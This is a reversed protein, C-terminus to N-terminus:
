KLKKLSDVSHQKVIRNLENTERNLDGGDILEKERRDFEEAMKDVDIHSVLVCRCQPTDQSIHLKILMGFEVTILNVNLHHESM